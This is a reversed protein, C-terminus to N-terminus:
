YELFIQFCIVKSRFTKFSRCKHQLFLMYVNMVHRSICGIVPVLFDSTGSATTDQQKDGHLLRRLLPPRLLSRARALSVRSPNRTEKEHARKKRASVVELRRSRLNYGGVCANKPSSTRQSCSLIFQKPAIYSM